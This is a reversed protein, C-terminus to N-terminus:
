CDPSAPVVKAYGKWRLISYTQHVTAAVGLVWLAILGAKMGSGIAASHFVADFAWALGLMSAGSFTLLMSTMGLGPKRRAHHLSWEEWGLGGPVRPSLSERIYRAAEFTEIVDTVFRLYLLESVVPIVLALARLSPGTVVIGLIAGTITLQLTLVHNHNQNNQLIEARLATFEALPGISPDNTTM